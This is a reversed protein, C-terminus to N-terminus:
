NVKKLKQELEIQKRERSIENKLEEVTPLYLKYKSAFINKNDNLSTYKVMTENKDTCLILGITKNDDRSKVEKEFYRVYFDMQGIDHHTLKGTKLDILVFCKLIYNYFVLDVYYHDGGLTIRKQRSVFSFGKGLELVFQKLKEVLISELDKEILTYNDKINLFELIYPDKILDKPTQIEQGKFSLDKIKKSSKSLILREYLLSNIQREFERTSWKNNVCEIMYFQRSEEKEIKLLLRYHTWSLQSRLANLIPFAVYFSKMYWLNREDFGKGFEKTLRKSLEKILYSGYEAREKGKQEEKIIIKGINWYAEVMAFNIAKYAKNRAIDLIQRIDTYVNGIEQKAM